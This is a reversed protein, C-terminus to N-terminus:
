NLVNRHFWEIWEPKMYDRVNPDYHIYAALEAFCEQPNLMAYGSPFGHRLGVKRNLEVMEEFRNNELLFAMREMLTVIEMPEVGRVMYVDGVRVWRILDLFEKSYSLKGQEFAHVVEHFVLEKQLDFGVQGEFTSDGFIKDGVNISRDDPWVWMGVDFSTYTITNPNEADSIKRWANQYRYITNFGNANVRAFFNQLRGDYLPQLLSAIKRFEDQTWEKPHSVECFSPDIWPTECTRGSAFGFNEYQFQVNPAPTPVHAFSVNAFFV